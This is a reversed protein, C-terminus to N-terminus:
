PLGRRAVQEDSANRLNRQALKGFVVIGIVCGVLLTVLPWRFANWGFTTGIGFFLGVFVWSVFYLPTLAPKILSKIRFFRPGLIMLAPFWVAAIAVSIWQSSTGVFPITGLLPHRIGWSDLLGCHSFEIESEFM